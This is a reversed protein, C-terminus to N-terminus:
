RAWRTARCSRRSCWASPCRSAGRDAGQADRHNGGRDACSRSARDRRGRGGRRFRRRARRHGSVGRRRGARRHAGRNGESLRQTRRQHHPGKRTRRDCPLRRRRVNGHRRHPVLRRLSRSPPRTPSSGTVRRSTRVTSRSKASPARRAARARRMSSASRSAPSRCSRRVRAQARRAAPEVREHRDRDDRLARPSRHGTRQEFARFTEPLLPASGAVFLRVNACAARDLAPEALLRTYFTPVGMMVTARPLLRLVEKADFKPVWLM